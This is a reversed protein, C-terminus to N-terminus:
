DTVAISDCYLLEPSALTVDRARRSAPAGDITVGLVDRVVADGGADRSALAVDALRFISCTDEWVDYPDAYGSERSAGLSDVYSRADVAVPLVAGGGPHVSDGIAPPVFGKPLPDELTLVRNLIDIATVRVLQPIV